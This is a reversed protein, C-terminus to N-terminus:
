KIPRVFPDINARVNPVTQLVTVDIILRNVVGTSLNVNSVFAMMILAFIMAIKLVYVVSWIVSHDIVTEMQDVSPDSTSMHVSAVSVSAETAYKDQNQANLQTNAIENPM